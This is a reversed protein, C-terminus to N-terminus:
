GASALEFVGLRTLGQAAKTSRLAEVGPFVDSAAISADPGLAALTEVIPTPVAIKHGNVTLETRGNEDQGFTLPAKGRRLLDDPGLGDLNAIAEFASGRSSGDMHRGLEALRDLEGAAEVSELRAVLARVKEKFVSEVTADRLEGIYPYENFEEADAVLEEFTQQLLDKWMRPRMMISLHLSAKGEAAAAHPTGYPLYLVDGPELSVEIEPEGLGELTYQAADSLREAPPNWLKWHKTGELQVIFLDVPDHHPPYGKKGTPTLFAVSDTRVAMRDSILRTFDRLEPVIQNLSCWTVTAGARFLEYIKEPDVVDTVTQGQIVVNRTYGQEPVGTGKLNVKIYPPRVVELNVLRDLKRLSLIDRPDGPVAKKRLMPKKNFYEAFFVNEDGVLDTFAYDVM